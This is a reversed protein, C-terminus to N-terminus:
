GGALERLREIFLLMERPTSFTSHSSPSVCDVGMPVGRTRAIEPTIKVAPLRGSLRHRSERPSGDGARALM